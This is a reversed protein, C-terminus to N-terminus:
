KDTYYYYLGRELFKICARRVNKIKKISMIESLISNCLQFGRESGCFLPAKYINKVQSILDYVGSEMDMLLFFDNSQIEAARNTRNTREVFVFARVFIYLLEMRMQTNNNSPADTFNRM